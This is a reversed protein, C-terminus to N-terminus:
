RFRNSGSKWSLFFLVFAALRFFTLYISLGLYLRFLKEWKLIVFIIIRWFWNKQQMTQSYICKKHLLINKKKIWFPPYILIVFLKIKEVAFDKYHSSLQLFSGNGSTNAKSIIRLDYFYNKEFSRFPPTIRSPAVVIKYEWSKCLWKEVSKLM